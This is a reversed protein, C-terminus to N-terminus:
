LVCLINLIQKFGNLSNQILILQNPLLPHQTNKEFVKQLIIWVNKKIMKVNKMENAEKDCDSFTSINLECETTLFSLGLSFFDRSKWSTM